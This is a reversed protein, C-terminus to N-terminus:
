APKGLQRTGGAGAPGRRGPVHNTTQFWTTAKLYSMGLYIQMQWDYAHQLVVSTNCFLVRTAFTNHADHANVLTTRDWHVWTIGIKVSTMTIAPFSDACTLLPTHLGLTSALEQHTSQESILQHNYDPIPNNFFITRSHKVSDPPLNISKLSLSTVTNYRILENMASSM